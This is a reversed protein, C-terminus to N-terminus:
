RKVKVVKSAQGCVVGYNSKKYAKVKYKATVGKKLQTLIISNKTTTKYLKYKKSKSNYQYVKYGTVGSQKKWSLKIKGKVKGKKLSTVKNPIVKVTVTVPAAHEGFITITAAGYTKATVVGNENVTVVKSDSSIFNLKQNAATIPMIQVNLQKVQNRKLTITTAAIITGNQVAIPSETTTNNSAPTQTTVQPESTTKTQETTVTNESTNPYESTTRDEETTENGWIDETTTNYANETTIVTGDSTSSIETTANYDNETTIVSDDSTSPIETTVPNESTNPCGSTTRDEETSESGWIDETTTNYDNETTIVTDDSTSPIETTVPNESTNPCGSTTRDEETTESGWIDETTVNYDNETTIVTGDSTSPIETTTNYDNETTIVSGDNTSPIETTVPNESTNPCGSTTRDEETTESGWIDETSANYDNETTIVFDDSTSPTETTVPNESTNPCGSTTRDEETTESGWIDETTTNYANETTIVSDDSTSPTETTVPNESTNPCGSTTRDEETTVDTATQTTAETVETGNETTAETAETGNETTVETAGTGNETTAETAETAIQTTAETAETVIETTAETVEAGSETTAETVETVAETTTAQTTQETVVETTTAEELSVELKTVFPSTYTKTVYSSVASDTIYVPNGSSVRGSYELCFAKVDNTGNADYANLVEYGYYNEPVDTNEIHDTNITYKVPTGGGYESLNTYSGVDTVVSDSYVTMEKDWYGSSEKRFGEFRNSVSYVKSNAGCKIQEMGDGNIATSNRVYFNNLVHLTGNGSQPARQVISDFINYLFTARDKDIEGNQTGFAIGWYRNTFTNYSFTMFDPSRDIDKGSYPTNIWIFKGVEDYEKTLDCNFDCHDIWINRSSYIAFAMMGSNKEVQFHINRVIINDSPEEEEFYDNTRLKCDMLQNNNYSGILTKNDEIRWDYNEGSCDINETLVITLPEEEVLANKLEDLTDVYVTEGFLGGITAAKEGEAVQCNGAYGELGDCNIKFKQYESQGYQELVVKNGKPQFTMAMNEDDCSVIKYFLYDGNFDKDTGVIKWLQSKQDSVADLTCIGNEATIAKDTRANMIRYVGESQYSLYWKENEEGNTFWSNLADGDGFGTININRDSDGIVLRFKQVPYDASAANVVRPSVGGMSGFALTVGLVMSLCAAVLRKGKRM